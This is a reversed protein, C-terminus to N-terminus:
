SVPWEFDYGKGIFIHQLYLFTFHVTQLDVSLTSMKFDKVNIDNELMCKDVISYNYECTNLDVFSVHKKTIKRDHEDFVRVRVLPRDFKPFFLKFFSVSVRKLARDHGPVRAPVNKEHVHSLFIVFFDHEQKSNGHSLGSSSIGKQQYFYM